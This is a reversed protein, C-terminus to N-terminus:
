LETKLTTSENTKTKGTTRSRETTEKQFYTVYADKSNLSQDLISTMADQLYSNYFFLQLCKGTM